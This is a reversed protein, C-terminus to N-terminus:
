MELIDTAIESDYFSLFSAFMNKINGCIFEVRKNGCIFELRVINAFYTAVIYM